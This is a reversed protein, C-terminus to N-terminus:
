SIVNTFRTEVDETQTKLPDKMQGDLKDMLHRGTKNPNFHVFHVIM